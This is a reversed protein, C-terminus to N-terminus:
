SGISALVARQLTVLSEAGRKATLNKVSPIMGALDVCSLWKVRTKSPDDADPTLATTQFIIKGRVVGKTEARYLSAKDDPISACTVVSTGGAVHQVRQCLVFDRDSVIPLKLSTWLLSIQTSIRTLRETTSDRTGQKLLDITRLIQDMSAPMTCTVRAVVRKGGHVEVTCDELGKVPKLDNWDGDNNLRRVEAQAEEVINSFYRKEEARLALEHEDLVGDGNQGGNRTNMEDFTEAGGDKKRSVVPSDPTIGPLLRDSGSSRWSAPHGDSPPIQTWGRQKQTTAARPQKESSPTPVVTSSGFQEEDKSANSTSRCCHAGM